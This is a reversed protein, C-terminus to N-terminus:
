AVMHQCPIGEKKPYDCTCTGIRLGMIDAKPIIVTYERKSTSKMSVAVAHHDKVEMVHIKFMATNIKKFAEEMLDM